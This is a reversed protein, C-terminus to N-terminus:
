QKTNYKSYKKYQKTLTYKSENTKTLVQTLVVAVSHCSLQLLYYYYYDIPRCSTTMTSLRVCRGGYRGMGITSM